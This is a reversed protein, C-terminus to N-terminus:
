KKRKVKEMTEEVSREKKPPYIFDTPYCLFLKRLYYLLRPLQKFSGGRSRIAVYHAPFFSILFNLFGILGVGIATWIIDSLAAASGLGYL